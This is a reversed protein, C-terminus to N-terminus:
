DITAEWLWGRYGSYVDAATLAIVIGQQDVTTAGPLRYDGCANEAVCHTTDSSILTDNSGFYTKPTQSDALLRVPLGDIPAFGLHNFRQIDGGIRLGQYANPLRAVILRRTQDTPLGNLAWAGSLDTVTSALLVDGFDHVGAVGLDRWAEVPVWPLRNIEIPQPEAMTPRAAITASVAAFAVALVAKTSPTM